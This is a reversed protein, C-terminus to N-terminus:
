KYLIVKTPINGETSSFEMFSFGGKFDELVRHLLVGKREQDQTAKWEEYEPNKSSYAIMDLPRGLALGDHFDLPEVTESYDWDIKWRGLLCTNWAMDNLSTSILLEIGKKTDVIVARRYDVLIETSPAYSIVKLSDPISVPQYLVDNDPTINCVFSERGYMVFCIEGEPHDSYYKVPHIAVVFQNAKDYPYKQRSFLDSPFDIPVQEVKAEADVRNLITSNNENSLFYLQGDRFGVYSVTGETSFVIEKEKITKNKLDIMALWFRDRRFSHNFSSYVVMLKNGHIECANINHYNERFNLLQLDKYKGKEDLIRCMMQDSTIPTGVGIFMLMLKLEPHYTTMQRFQARDGDNLDCHVKVKYPLSVESILSDRSSYFRCTTKSMMAASNSTLISYSGDAYSVVRVLDDKTNSFPIEKQGFALVNILFTLHLIKKM